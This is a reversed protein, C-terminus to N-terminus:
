KGKEMQVYKILTTQFRDMANKTNIFGSSANTYRTLILDGPEVVNKFDTSIWSGVSLLNELVDFFDERLDDQPIISMDKLIKMMEERKMEREGKNRPYSWVDGLIFVWNLMSM